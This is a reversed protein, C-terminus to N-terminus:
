ELRLASVPNALYAKYIQSTVTLIVTLAILFAALVFPLPGLMIRYAYFAELLGNLAFYSLPAALLCAVALSIIFGKTILHTLNLFDAGLTKRISFEKMRRAITLSVLGFLGMCTILLAVTAIFLFLKKIGIGEQYFGAFVEDQFFGEYPTDPFLRRWTQQLYDTVRTVNNAESRVAIFNFHEEGTMRFLVPEIKVSFPRYHFDEVVGVVEYDKGHLHVQQGLANTWEMIHAFESNVVISQHGDAPFDRNFFRGAKLRLEQTELYDFGVDFLVADYKRDLMEVVVQESSVGLHHRAGATTLVNAHRGIENQYTSFQTGGDLSVVITQKQNYGWDRGQQYAANQSFVIGAMVLTFSLIFQFTLFAYAFINRGRIRYTGKLIHAPQFASIYLAPYAGTGVGLVILIVLYFLWVNVNGLFDLPLDIVSFLGNFAPVFFFQALLASVILAFFCLLMNEGIFQVTLQSKTSGVVKRIGVEKIRKAASAVAINVYNFCAISLIFLGIFLLALRESPASAGSIDGQVKYSNLAMDPLPDFVFKLIPRDPDAANQLQVYRDTQDAVAHIAEPDYLQIFTARTLLSWDNLDSVGVDRQKEYALLMDFEFSAEPPIKETVGKVVFADTYHENFTITIVNGIPNTDGFYKIALEESFIVAQEDALAQKDGYKLPFTFMELFDEDVFRAREHFVHDEYRVIGQGDALRVAYQIEPFDAKLAPGMPMPSNGWRQFGDELEIDYDVLFIREAHEHFADMSYQWAMFLYIVTCCALATSFGIINILTLQRNRRLNRLALKIYNGLM